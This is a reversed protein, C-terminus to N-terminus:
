PMITGSRRLIYLKRIRGNYEVKDIVIGSYNRNKRERNSQNQNISKRM